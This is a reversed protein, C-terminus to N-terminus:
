ADAAREAEDRQRKREAYIAEIHERMAQEDDSFLGAMQLVTEPSGQRPRDMRKTTAEGNPPNSRNLTKEPMKEGRGKIQSNGEITVCNMVAESM